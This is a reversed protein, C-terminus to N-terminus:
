SFTDHSTDYADVEVYRGGILPYGNVTLLDIWLVKLCRCRKCEKQLCFLGM